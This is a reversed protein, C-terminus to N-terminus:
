SACPLVAEVVTGQGAPSSVHLSGGLAAVRDAMTSGTPLCAGGRGDDRVQVVVSDGGRTVRLDISRADAHKVSNTVAEAAVFYATTAVEDPLDDECVDMDVPMPVSRLMARLAPGLGDDLSSPRLGHAIQRLEAVSTGLEAVSRDLLDGVDLTGDDLHRQAVRFAMGLSVLRQQAGDHLDRELQRREEYSVQVLRARSSEVEHLAGSLEMRLRVVEILVACEDAVQRLLEPSAVGRGAVVVGIQTSALRAPVGDAPEIPNGSSDVFRDAAPVRFGIRLDPDRLSARLVQELQEPQTRGASMDRRFTEIAALVTRRLPYLRRDIAAQLRSRSPALAVSCLATAAAAAVPSERGLALGVAFSAAAYISVVAASVAVWTVAAVLARDVDYADHRLAAIGTAVPIGVLAAIGLALSTWTPTGWIAIEVLCIVPYLPLALGVIALWRIQRRLTLNGGRYRAIPAIACLLVLLLLAAFTVMSVVDLWGPPQGFPPNLTDLPPRRAGTDFSGYILHVLMCAVLAPAVLLWRHGPLRGDPFYLLLLALLVMILIGSEATIALLWNLEALVGPRVALVGIGVERTVTVAVSLGLLTLVLGVVNGPQRRLIMLGIVTAVGVVLLGLAATGVSTRRPELFCLVIAAAMLTAALVAAAWGLRGLWRM